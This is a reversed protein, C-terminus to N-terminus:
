CITGLYREIISQRAKTEDDPEEENLTTAFKTMQSNEGRYNSLRDDITKRPDGVEEAIEQQTWGALYLSLTRVEKEFKGLARQNKTWEWVTQEATTRHERKRSLL